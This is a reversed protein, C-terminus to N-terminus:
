RQKPMKLKGIPTQVEQVLYTGARFVIPHSWPYVNKRSPYKPPTLPDRPDIAIADQYPMGCSVLDIVLFRHPQAELAAQFDPQRTPHYNMLEYLYTFRTAPLLNMDWYISVCDSNFCCVEREKVNQSRLFEAVKELDQRRPNDFHAFRDKLEASSSSTISSKWLQLRQKTLMSNTSVVLCAFLAALVQYRKSNESSAAHLVILVFGLIVAPVHVYDFLHQLFFSHILWTVYIAALVSKTIVSVETSAPNSSDKGCKSVVKILAAFAIPIAAFHVLMWPFFRSFMLVFRQWTWNVRGAALYDPNWNSLTDMFYPWAGCSMLWAVGISGGIIGGILLGGADVISARRNPMQRFSILWVAVISLVIHPKIWIGSAWVLGEFLSSAFLRSGPRSHSNETALANARDIQRLRLLSGILVPLLVWTDRQCHCWESLSWYFISLGTLTWVAVRNSTAIQSRQTADQPHLSANKRRIFVFLSGLIGAFLVLDFGRMTESSDGRITRALMQLWVVGPLNPEHMDKYLTGGQTVMRAQIDFLCTDNTLPMRLFIPVAFAAWLVFCLWANLSGTPANEAKATDDSSSANPNTADTTSSLDTM